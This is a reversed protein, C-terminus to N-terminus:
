SQFDSRRRGATAPSNGNEGSRSKTKPEIALSIVPETFEIGELIIQHNDDTLTDGTKTKSLGVIAVIEGAIAEDIQERDNAHM